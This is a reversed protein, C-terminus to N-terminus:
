RRDVGATWGVAALRREEIPAQNRAVSRGDRRALHDDHAQRGADQANRHVPRDRGVQARVYALVEAVRHAGRPLEGPLPVGHEVVREMQPVRVREPRMVLGEREGVRQEAVARGRQEARSGHGRQHAVVQQEQEGPRQAEQACIQECALEAEAARAAGCGARRERVRGVADRLGAMQMHDGGAADRQRQKQQQAAVASVVGTEHQGAPEHGRPLQAEAERQAQLVAIQKREKRQQRQERQPM